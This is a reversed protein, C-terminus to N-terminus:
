GSERSFHHRLPDTLDRATMDLRLPTVSVMNAAIAADDSGPTLKGQQRRYMLWYYPLNRGDRREEVHLGHSLEGQVTIATGKIKAPSVNPFNVNYFVGRPFGFALLKGIIAPALAEATAWPVVREGASYEYGQSLAISPIGLLTGEIAGAITGSYSIDDAINTGSNVGSLILDPKDPLLRRVAMIVCDSPTGRVAYHQPSVARLRLPDNL